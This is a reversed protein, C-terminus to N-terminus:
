APRSRKLLFEIEDMRRQKDRERLEYLREIMLKKTQDDVPATLILELEEDSSETAVSGAARLAEAPDDGVAEAIARVSAVTVGGKGAMWKFITARHIQSERALRAVSWGPRSAIRKLYGSWDEAGSLGDSM